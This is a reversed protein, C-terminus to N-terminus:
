VKSNHSVETETGETFTRTLIRVLLDKSITEGGNLLYFIAAVFCLNTQFHKCQFLFHNYLVVTVVCAHVCVRVFMCM